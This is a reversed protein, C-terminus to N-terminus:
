CKSLLLLHYLKNSMHEIVEPSRDIAWIYQLGDKVMDLYITPISNIDVSIRHTPSSQLYWNAVRFQWLRFLTHATCFRWERINRTSLFM